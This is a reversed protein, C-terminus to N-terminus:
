KLKQAVRYFCERLWAHPKDADYRPHWALAIALPPLEIGLPVSRLGLQGSVQAAFRGPVVAMRDSERVLWAAAFHTPVIREVRRALGLAELAVDLSGRGKGRRSVVVHGVSALRKPTLRGRGLPHGKRVVGVMKDEFLKRVRLEPGLQSQVGVDLEVDGSRLAEVDETGEPLFALRVRPAESQVRVDLRQGIVGLLYDNGRVTFTRELTSLDLDAAKDLLARVESSAVHVRERIAIARPTPMMRRGARVLLPDGTADRLRQLTRSMAPPSLGMRRAAGLVSGERLLADLALLLNADVSHMGHM